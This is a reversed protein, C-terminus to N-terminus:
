IILAMASKASDVYGEGTISMVIISNSNLARVYDEICKCMCDACSSMLKGPGSQSKRSNVFIRIIYVFVVAFSCYCLSGLHYKM